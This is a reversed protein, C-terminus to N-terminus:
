YPDSSRIFVPSLLRCQTNYFIVPSWLGPAASKWKSNETNNVDTKLTVCGEVRSRVFSHQSIQKLRVKLLERPFDQGGNLGDLNNIFEQCTMKKGINQPAHSVNIPSNIPCSPVADGQNLGTLGVHGSAM